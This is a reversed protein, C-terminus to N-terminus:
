KKEYPNSGPFEGDCDEYWRDCMLWNFSNSKDRKFKEPTWAELVSQCSICTGCGGRKEIVYKLAFYFKESTVSNNQFDFNKLELKEDGFNFYQKEM